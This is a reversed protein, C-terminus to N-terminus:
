KTGRWIRIRVGLTHRFQRSDLGLTTSAVLSSHPTVNYAAFLGAAWEGHRGQVPESSGLPTTRWEYQGGAALSLRAPSILPYKALSDATQAKAGTALVFLVVLAAVIYAIRTLM